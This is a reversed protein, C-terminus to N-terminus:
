LKKSFQVFLRVGRLEGTSYWSRSSIYFFEENITMYSFFVLESIKCSMSHQSKGYKPFISGKTDYLFLGLPTTSLFITLATELETQWHLSNVHNVESNSGTYLGETGLFVTIYLLIIRPGKRIGVESFTANLCIYLSEIIMLISASPKLPLIKIIHHSSCLYSRHIIRGM